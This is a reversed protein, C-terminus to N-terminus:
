HALDSPDTNAGCVVVVVREGPGPRYAGTVLGALAAAGGPEALVRCREWLRRRAALIAEDDVLVTRVGSAVAAAYGLDGVRRAGLSDAAVGSVAVDVPRGGVVAAHLTPATVPEVAVIRARGDLAAAIGGLLGGGGVAVLVTDCGPVQEVLERGVLGQGAVVEHMDYAHVVLAGTQASRELMAAFADAYQAGTVVVRAGLARIGAIKVASAAEPVFVEATHGLARGVYAVALGHNGGSAAIIGAAPM